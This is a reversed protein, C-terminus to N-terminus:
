QKKQIVYFPINCTSVFGYKNYIFAFLRYPGEKEPAIFQIKLPEPRIIKLEIADPRIINSKGNEEYWDEPYIEWNIKTINSDPKTLFVQANAINASNLLINDKAEKQNLEIKDIQVSTHLTKNGSWLQKVTSVAETKNGYEDFLSFWTHTREQKQGWYFICSGLFRSDEVPMFKQYMVQYIDAKKTSSPEIYADWATKAEDVWPGNTGWETIIYPGNWLWSYRKLDRRLSSIRSFINFSIIDIDTKLKLNFIQSPQFNVMTTTVPHNPDDQHIMKVIRNFAKYFKKYSLSYPFYLENGVCWMLISPDNKFKNVFTKVTQFQQETKIPDNYYFLHESEFIPIGVIVSINNQKANQLIATLNTTDWIRITNGGAERLTEFNSYGGAGKIVFKEGNKYLSYNGNTHEIFVNGKQKHSTKTSCNSFLLLLSIPLLFSIEKISISM